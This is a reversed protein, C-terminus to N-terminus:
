LYVCLCMPMGLAFQWSAGFSLLQASALDTIFPYFMKAGYYLPWNLSLRPQEAFYSVLTTHLPLDGWTYGSSYWGGTGNMLYHTYTLWGFLILLWFWGALYIWRLVKSQPLPESLVTLKTKPRLLAILGIAFVLLFISAIGGGVRGFASWSIFSLWGSLLVTLISVSSIVEIKTLELPLLKALRWILYGFLLTYLVALLM